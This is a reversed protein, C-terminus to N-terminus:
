IDRRWFFILVLFAFVGVILSIIMTINFGKVIRKLKGAGYNQGVFTSLATSIGGATMWAIAEVQSGVKQVAIPVPGFVAVIKGIFMSFVTFLGSQLAAPLGIHFLTKM